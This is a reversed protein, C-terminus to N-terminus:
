SPLPGDIDDDVWEGGDPGSLAAGGDLRCLVRLSSWSSAFSAALIGLLGAGALSLAFALAITLTLGGGIM